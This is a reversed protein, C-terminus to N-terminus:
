LRTGMVRFLSRLRPKKRQRKKPKRPKRPKRPKSAEAAEETEAAEAVEEVAAKVAVTVADLNAINDGLAFDANITYQGDKDGTDWSFTLENGSESAVVSDDEDRVTWAIAAGPSQVEEGEGQLNELVNAYGAGDEITDLGRIGIGSLNFAKSQQIRHNLAAESGLWVDYTQGDKDYSYRYTLSDGDWELPKASGSLAVEVTENPGVEESGEIFQLEGFNSLAEHNPLSSFTEGFRNVAAAHNLGRLKSRDVQRTVYDLLQTSEDDQGYETPDLPLEVNIIDAIEGLAAWDQGGSHWTNGTLTPMGLTIALQMGQAHLADALDRSFASFADSQNEPVQQYDVEIGQYGGAEALSVLQEIQDKQLGADGLLKSLAAQDIVPGVNSVQVWQKYAGDPQREVEGDLAGESNLKLGTIVVDSVLPLVATPIKGGSSVYSTVAVEEPTGTEMLTFAQPLERDVSVVQNSQEDVQSPIFSWASGDWGFLDLTTLNAADAPVPLAIQGRTNSDSASVTYIEGSITRNQAPQAAANAALFDSQSMAAINASGNSLALAVGAPMSAPGGSDSVFAGQESAVMEGSDGASTEAPESSGFGLREGLSIPPLFLGVLILVAVIAFGGIILARTQGGSNTDNQDM